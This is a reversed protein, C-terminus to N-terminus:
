QDPSAHGCVPWSMGRSSVCSAIRVLITEQRKLCVFRRGCRFSPTNQNGCLSPNILVLEGDLIASEAQLKGFAEVLRPLRNGCEAGSKSYFRVGTGDKIIQFRFGDWKPEFVWGEGRPPHTATSPVCPRVFAFHGSM